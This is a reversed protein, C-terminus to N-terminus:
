LTVATSPHGVTSSRLATVADCLRLCATLSPPSPLYPPPASGRLTWCSAPSPRSALPPRPSASSMSVHPEPASLLPHPSPAARSSCNGPLRPPLSPTRAPHSADRASTLRDRASTLLARAAVKSPFLFHEPTARGCSPNALHPRPPPRPTAADCAPGVESAAAARPSSHAAEAGTTTVERAVRGCLSRSTRPPGRPPTPRPASPSRPPFPGPRSRRTGLRDESAATRPAGLGAGLPGAGRKERPSRTGASRTDPGSRPTLGGQAAAPAQPESPPDRPAARVHPSRAPVGPHGARGEM